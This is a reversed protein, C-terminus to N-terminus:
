VHARGIEGGAFQLFGVNTYNQEAGKFEVELWQPDGDFIALIIANFFRDQEKLLYNKISDYNSTLQRQLLEDLCSASYLENISATVKDSIQEFTMTGIYYNWSGIKGRIVPIKM